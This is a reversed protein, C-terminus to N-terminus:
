EGRRKRIKKTRFIIETLYKGIKNDKIAIKRLKEQKQAEKLEMFRQMYNIKNLKFNTLQNHRQHMEEHRRSLSRSYKEEKEQLKKLYNDRRQQEYVDNTLKVVQRYHEKENISDSGRRQNQKQLMRKEREEEKQLIKNRRYKEIRKAKEITKHILQSKHEQRQKLDLFEISKKRQFANLKKEVEDEKELYLSRKHELINEHKMMAGQIDKSKQILRQQSIMKREEQKARVYDEKSKRFSLSLPRKSTIM